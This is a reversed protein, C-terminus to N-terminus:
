NANKIQDNLKELKQEATGLYKYALRQGCYGWAIAIVYMGWVDFWTPLKHGNYIAIFLGLEYVVWGLFSVILSDWEENKFMAWIDAPPMAPYKKRLRKIVQMIHYGIGILLLLSTLLFDM